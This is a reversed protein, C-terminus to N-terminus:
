KLNNKIREVYFNDENIALTESLATFKSRLRFLYFGDNEISKSLYNEQTIEAFFIPLSCRDYITLYIDYNKLIDQNTVIKLSEGALLYDYNFVTDTAGVPLFEGKIFDQSFRKRFKLIVFVYYHLSLYFWNKYKILDQYFDNINEPVVASNVLIQGDVKITPLTVDQSWNYYRLGITYQGKNLKVTTWEGQFDIRNSELSTVTEYGPFGYFVLIWSETSQNLSQLDITVSEQVPFPGLTGIIAHTNWRPAKTMLVPLVLPSNLNDGSLVRWQRSKDRNIILYLTYVNGIVFGMLKYFLFSFFALIFQFM